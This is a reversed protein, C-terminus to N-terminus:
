CLVLRGGCVGSGRTWLEGDGSCCAVITWLSDPRRQLFVCPTVPPSHLWGPGADLAAVGTIVFIGSGISAGVGLLILDWVGLSRELNKEANIVEVGPAVPVKIRTAAALFSRLRSPEQGIAM